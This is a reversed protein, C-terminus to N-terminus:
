ANGEIPQDVRRLLHSTQSYHNWIATYFQDYLEVFLHTQAKMRRIDQECVIPIKTFIKRTLSGHEGKLNIDSHAKVPSLLEPDMGIRYAADLFSDQKIDKGELIGLTTFFFLPDNHAWYALGNCLAMTEPLPATLALDSRSIGIQNLSKLLLEDHGYEEAYFENMALRVDNNPVYSLVPADFYSERFLFHYNEIIMGYIINKPIDSASKAETCKKWFVNKYLTSYLLQNSLDELELLVELGSRGVAPTRMRLLGNSKLKDFLQRADESATELCIKELESESIGAPLENLFRGISQSENPVSIEFESENTEVVIQPSTALCKGNLVYKPEDFIEHIM